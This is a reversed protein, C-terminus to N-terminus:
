DLDPHLLDARPPTWPARVAPCAGSRRPVTLDTFGRGSLESYRVDGLLVSDDDAGRWAPVRVFQLAARAVCSERYLAVLEAVPATWESDWQIARTSRRHSERANVVGESRTGCSVAPWARPVSSVRGTSVRYDSGEVEVAIVTMCVASAPLPSVVVDLLRSQPAVTAVASRTAARASRAGVLMVLTVAIWGAAAVAVRRREGLRLALAISVIAGATLAIASTRSVMEVRWALALGILLMIGLLVRALRRQAAVLLAPIAVIWLWPEVIFVADGYMWRNDIPWFPHVGYSNTWDLLLHSSVGALLLAFLWASDRRSPRQRDRWRLIALAILWMLIAGLIVGPVTHTYGRHQLMYAIRDAGAGTYLLDGDPLNAAVMASGIATRRVVDRTADSGQRRLHLAGEAILLGALTHTVNDM